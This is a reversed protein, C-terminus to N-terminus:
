KSAFLNIEDRMPASSQAGLRTVSLAAAQSAWTIAEAVQRGEALGAVLVGNFVDGAATTDMVEVKRAPFHRQADQSKYLAGQAGLTIVVQQVGRALLIDAARSASELGEVEVGSLISAETENPTLWDLYAYWDLPLTAAPAPNLITTLGYERAKVLAHRVTVLPIELQVLLYKSKQFAEEAADLDAPHLDHNAGPAVVIENEGRGDVTILAVGSASPSTGFFFDTHIGEHQLGQRATEGFIDTGTKGIFHVTAGARAAAVAQNAGKGGPFMFFTGGIVTEGPAPFHATKVVMDTNSSGIILVQSM